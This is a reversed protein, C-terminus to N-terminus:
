GRATLRRPWPRCRGTATRAFITTTVTPRCRPRNWAARPRATGRRIAEATTTARLAGRGTCSWRTRTPSSRPESRGTSTTTPCPTTPCPTTLCPRTTTPCQPGAPPRCSPNGGPLPRFRPIRATPRRATPRRACRSRATRRPPTTGTPRTTGARRRPWRRRWRRPAPRRDLGARHDFPEDIDDYRDDDRAAPVGGSPFEPNDFDSGLEPRNFDLVAAETDPQTIDTPVFDPDDLWAPRESDFEGRPTRSPGTNRRRRRVALEDVPRGARRPSPPPELDLEDAYRDRAVATNDAYSVPRSGSSYQDEWYEDDEFSM